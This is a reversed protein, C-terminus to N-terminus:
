FFELSKFFSGSLYAPLKGPARPTTELDETKEDRAIPHFFTYILDCQLLYCVPKNLCCCSATGRQISLTNHKNRVQTVEASCRLLNHVYNNLELKRKAAVEKIHTRGLVM